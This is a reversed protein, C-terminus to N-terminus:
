SKSEDGKQESEPVGADIANVFICNFTYWGLWNIMAVTGDRGLVKDCKNWIEIPLPGPTNILHYSADYAVDAAESLGTPKKGSKISDIQDKTMKTKALTIETHAYLLYAAQYRAAAVLVVTEKAEIPCAKWQGLKTMFDALPISLERSAIFAPFPGILSNRDDHWKTTAGHTKTCFAFLGEAVPKHQEDWEEAPRPPIRDDPMIIAIITKTHAPALDRPQRKFLPRSSRFAICIVHPCIPPTNNNGTSALFLM